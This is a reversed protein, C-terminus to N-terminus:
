QSDGGGEEIIEADFVEKANGLAAMVEPDMLLAKMRNDLESDSLKHTHEEEVIKRDTFRRSFKAAMWRLQEARVKAVAATDRDVAALVEDLADEVLAQGRVELAAEYDDKFGSVDRMWKGVMWHSPMPSGHDELEQLAKKIGKGNSVLVIIATRVEENTWMGGGWVRIGEGVVEAVIPPRWIEVAARSKVKAM